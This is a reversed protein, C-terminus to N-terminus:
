RGITPAGGHSKQGRINSSLWLYCVLVNICSEVRSQAKWFLMLYLKFRFDVQLPHHMAHLLFFYYCWSPIKCSPSWAIYVMTRSLCCLQELLCFSCPSSQCRYRRNAVQVILLLSTHEGEEPWALIQPASQGTSEPPM